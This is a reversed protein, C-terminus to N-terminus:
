GHLKAQGPKWNALATELLRVTIEDDTERARDLATEGASDRALPNAGRQLLLAVAASRGLAAAVMLPTEGSRTNVEDIACGHDLLLAIVDTNGGLAADHLPAAGNRDRADLRAGRAILLQVVKAQGKLAADHLYTSGSSTPRNLDVGSDLLLKVIETRGRLAATEMAEEVESQFRPEAGCLRLLMSVVGANKYAV